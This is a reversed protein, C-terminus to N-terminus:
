GWFNIRSPCGTLPNITMRQHVDIRIFIINQSGPIFIQWFLDSIHRLTPFTDSHRFFRSLCNWEILIGVFQFLYYYTVELCFSFCYTFKKIRDQIAIGLKWGGNGGQYRFGEWVLMPLGSYRALYFLGPLIPEVNCWYLAAASSVPSSHYLAQLTLCICRLWVLSWYHHSKCLIVFFLTALTGFRKLFLVCCIPLFTIYDVPQQM